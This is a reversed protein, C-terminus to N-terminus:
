QEIKRSALIYYNPTYGPSNSSEYSKLYLLAYNTGGRLQCIIVDGRGVNSVSDKPNIFRDILMQRTINIDHFNLDTAKVFKTGSAPSAQLTHNLYDQFPGNYYQRNSVRDQVDVDPLDASLLPDVYREKMLDYGSTGKNYAQPVIKFTDVFAVKVVRETRLGQRDIAWFKWVTNVTRNPNPMSVDWSYNFYTAKKLYDGLDQATDQYAYGAEELANTASYTVSFILSPFGVVLTDQQIRPYLLSPNHAYNSFTIVPATGLPQEIKTCSVSCGLALLLVFRVIPHKM